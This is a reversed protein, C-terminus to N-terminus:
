DYVVDERAESKWRPVLSGTNWEYLWGVLEGTERDFIRKVARAHVRKTEGCPLHSSDARIKSARRLVIPGTSIMRTKAFTAM